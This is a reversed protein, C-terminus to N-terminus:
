PPTRRRPACGPRRARGPAPSPRGHGNAAQGRGPDDRAGQQDLADDAPGPAQRMRHRPDAGQDRHQLPAPVLRLLRLARAASQADDRDQGQDGDCAACAPAHLRQGGGRRQPRPASSSTQPAVPSAARLRNSWTRATARGSFVPSRGAARRATPMITPRSTSAISSFSIAVAARSLRASLKQSPTTAGTKQNTIPPRGPSNM